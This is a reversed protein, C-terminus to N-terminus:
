ISDQIAKATDPGVHFTLTKHVPLETDIKEQGPQDKDLKQLLSFMNHDAPYFGYTFYSSGVGIGLHDLGGAGGYLAITIRNPNPPEGESFNSPLPNQPVFLENLDYPNDQYSIHSSHGVLMPVVTPVNGSIPVGGNALSADLPVWGDNPNDLNPFATGYGADPTSNYLSRDFAGTSANDPQTLGMAGQGAGLGVDGTFWVNPDYANPGVSFADVNSGPLPPSAGVDGGGFYDPPAFPPMVAMDNGLSTGPLFSDSWSPPPWSVDGGDAVGSFTASNDFLGGALLAVPKPVANFFWGGQSASDSAAVDDTEDRPAMVQLLPNNNLIEEQLANPQSQWANAFQQLFNGQEETLIGDYWAM